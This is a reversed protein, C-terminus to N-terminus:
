KTMILEPLNENQKLTFVSDVHPTVSRRACIPSKNIVKMNTQPFLNVSSKVRQGYESLSALLEASFSFRGNLNEWLRMVSSNFRKPYNFLSSLFISKSYGIQPWSFSIWLKFFEIGVSIPKRLSSPQCNCRPRTKKGSSKYNRPNCFLAFRISKTLRLFRRSVSPRVNQVCNRECSSSPLHLSCKDTIGLTRLHCPFDSHVTSFSGFHLPDAVLSLSTPEVRGWECKLVTEVSESLEYLQM